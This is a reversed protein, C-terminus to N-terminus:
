FLFSSLNGGGGGNTSGTVCGIIGVIQTVVTM